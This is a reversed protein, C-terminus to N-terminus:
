KHTLWTWAKSAQTFLGSCDTLVSSFHKYIWSFSSYIESWLFPNNEGNIMQDLFSFKWKTQDVSIWRLFSFCSIKMIIEARVRRHHVELQLFSGFTTHTVTQTESCVEPPNSCTNETKWIFVTWLLTQSNQVGAQVLEGEAEVERLHSYLSLVDGTAEVRGCKM